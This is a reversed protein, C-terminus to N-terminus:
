SDCVIMDEECGKRVEDWSDWGEGELLRRRLDFYVYLCRLRRLRDDVAQGKRTM